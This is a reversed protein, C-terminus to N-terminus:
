PKVWGKGHCSGCDAKGGELSEPVCTEEAAGPNCDCNEYGTWDEMTGCMGCVWLYDDCVPTKPVSGVEYIEGCGGCRVVEVKKVAIM